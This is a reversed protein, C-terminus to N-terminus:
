SSSLINTYNSNSLLYLCFKKSFPKGPILSNCPLIVIIEFLKSISQATFSLTWVNCWSFFLVESSKDCIPTRFTFSRIFIKVTSKRIFNFRIANEMISSYTDLTFSRNCALVRRMFRSVIKFILFVVNKVSNAM